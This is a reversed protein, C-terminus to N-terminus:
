VRAELSSPPPLTNVRGWGVIFHDGTLRFPVEVGKSRSQRVACFSNEMASILPPYPLKTIGAPGHIEYPTLGKFSELRARKLTSVTRTRPTGPRRHQYAPM